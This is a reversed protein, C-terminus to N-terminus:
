YWQLPRYGEYHYCGLTDGSEILTINFSKNKKMKEIIDLADNLFLVKGKGGLRLQTKYIKSEKGFDTKILYNGQPFGDEYIWFVVETLGSPEKRIHIFANDGDDNRGCIDAVNVCNKKPKNYHWTYMNFPMDIPPLPEGKNDMVSTGVLLLLM